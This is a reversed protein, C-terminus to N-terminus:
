LNIFDRRQNKIFIALFHALSKNLWTAFDRDLVCKFYQTLFLIKHKTLLFHAFFLLALTNPLIELLSKALATSPFTPTSTFVTKTLATNAIRNM